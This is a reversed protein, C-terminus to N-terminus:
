GGMRHMEVSGRGAGGSRLLSYRDTRAHWIREIAARLAGGSADDGLLDRLDHGEAAFLCTYLRGDATLRIRTCDGCFPRSVASIVGLEGGGDRYLYRTAVAGPAPPAAVLPFAAAVAAVMSDAPVVDSEQWGHSQGVDMYEILRLVLGEERAFRALPVIASENVGRRIVANLKVPALGADRAARVGAVVRGVSAGVGSMRAFVNGDLADLSVTIRHLGAEALARAQGALYWGNTTLALDDIGPVEALSRVLEPLGRRLLPEGGTLRIKHVGLGACAAAIRTIAAFDLLDARSLYAPSGAEPPLCYACRFNCRDTVSIRLDRVPRALRDATPGAPDATARRARDTTLLSM